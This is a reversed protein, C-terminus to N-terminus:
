PRNVQCGPGSRHHAVSEAATLRGDYLEDSAWQMIHQNMRYQVTLMRAVGAHHWKSHVRAFLTESLGEAAAAKSMVTPPLQLHDGALVCKNGKLMAGWCSPELAQAAEDIVVVDFSQHRMTGSLAGSLTACM